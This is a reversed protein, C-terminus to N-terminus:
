DRRKTVNFWESTAWQWDDIKEPNGFNRLVRGLLRYQGAPIEQGHAWRTQSIMFTGGQGRPVNVMPFAITTASLGVPETLMHGRFKNQGPVPPYVWDTPKWDRDVFDFSMERTSFHNMYYSQPKPNGGDMPFVAGEKIFGGDTSMLFPVQAEQDWIETNYLSSKIGLYPVSLLEGLDSIVHIRGGYVPLTKPDPSAPPTFSILVKRSEGPQLSFGAPLNVSAVSADEREYPPETVFWVDALPRTITTIGADHTLNYYATGDGSNTITLEQSGAYHNTDNLYLISPILTTKSVLVKLADVLGAGQHSVSALNATGDSHRVPKSSAIIRDLTIKNGDKGLSSRGGRSAYYLAAVGAIYPTAMSTGSLIAWSGQDVPFTSFIGGGPASIVPSLRTDITPGWSSFSSMKGGAYMGSNLGIPKAATNPVFTFTVNNGKENQSYLWDGDEYSILAFGKPQRAPDYYVRDPVVYEADKDNSYFVYDVRGALASDHLQWGCNRRPSIFITNRAVNPRSLTCPNFADRSSAFSAPLSNTVTWAARNHSVYAVERSEGHSSSAIVTFGVLEDHDVSGVSAADYGNGGDSTYFPGRQGSNGAAISVFTGEAVISSVVVALPSDPFGLSSGLSATIIDAGDDRAKLFAAIVVDEFTSSSCGFVKYAWIKAEPAVGPVFESDSAVIGAVHTGHGNCDLPDEDPKYPEGSDPDWNDGVFDYGREVKFGAGFGRGLSPHTYDVGSDVIAINVGKGRYGLAHVSAVNTDNHPSWRPYTGEAVVRRATQDDKPVITFVGAPWVGEVEPLSKLRALTDIVTSSNSSTSDVSFSAGHFLDSNFNIGPKLDPVPEENQLIRFFAQADLDGDRKRFRVSGAESFRVIYRGSSQSIVPLIPLSGTVAALDQGIALSLGAVAVFWTLRVM